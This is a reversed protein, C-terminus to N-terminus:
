PDRKILAEIRRFAAGLSYFIQFRDPEGRCMLVIENPARDTIEYFAAVVALHSAATPQFDVVLASGTMGVRVFGFQRVAYDVPDRGRAQRGLRRALEGRSRLANGVRDFIVEQGILIQNTKVV